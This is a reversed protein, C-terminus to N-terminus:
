GNLYIEKCKESCHYIFHFILLYFCEFPVDHIEALYNEVVRASKFIIFIIFIINHKIGSIMCFLIM